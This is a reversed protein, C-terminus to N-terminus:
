TRPLGVLDPLVAKVAASMRERAAKARRGFYAWGAWGGVMAIGLTGPVHLMGVVFGTAFFALVAVGVRLETGKDYGLKRHLPDAGCWSFSTRSNTNYLFLLRNKVRGTTGDVVSIRQGRTISLDENTLQYRYEVGDTEDRVWFELKDDVAINPRRVSDDRERWHRINFVQGTIARLGVSKRGVHLTLTKV